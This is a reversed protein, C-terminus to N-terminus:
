SGDGVVRLATPKTANADQAAELRAIRGELANIRNQLSGVAEKMTETLIQGIGKAFERSFESDM